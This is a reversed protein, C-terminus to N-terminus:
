WAIRLRSQLPAEGQYGPVNDSRRVSACPPLHEVRLLLSHKVALSIIIRTARDGHSRNCVPEFSKSHGLIRLAKSFISNIHGDKGLQRILM